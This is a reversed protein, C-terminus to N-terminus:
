SLLLEVTLWLFLCPVAGGSEWYLPREVARCQYYLMQDEESTIDALCCFLFGWINNGSLSMSKDTSWFAKVLVWFGALFDCYKLWACLWSCGWQFAYSFAIANWGWCAKGPVALHSWSSVGLQCSREWSPFLPIFCVGLMRVECPQRVAQSPSQHSVWMILTGSPWQSLPSTSLKDSCWLVQLM